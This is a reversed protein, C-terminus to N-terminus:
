EECPIQVDPKKKRIFKIGKEIYIVLVTFSAFVAIYWPINRMNIESGGPGSRGAHFGGGRHMDGEPFGGTRNRMFLSDAPMERGPIQTRERRQDFRLRLSDPFERAERGEYRSPGRGMGRGFQQESPDYKFIMVSRDWYNLRKWGFFGATLIALALVASSILRVM